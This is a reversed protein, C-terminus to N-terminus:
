DLDLQGRLLCCIPPFCYTLPAMPIMPLSFDAKRVAPERAVAAHVHSLFGCPHLIYTVDQVSELFGGRWDGVGRM